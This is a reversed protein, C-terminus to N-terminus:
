WAEAVWKVNWAIWMSSRIDLWKVRVFKLIRLTECISRLTQWKCGKWMQGVKGWM